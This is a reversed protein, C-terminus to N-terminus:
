QIPGEFNRLLELFKDTEVERYEDLIAQSNARLIALERDLEERTLLGKEALVDHIAGIELRQEILQFGARGALASASRAASENRTGARITPSPM